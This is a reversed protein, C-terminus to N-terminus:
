DESFNLSPSGAKMEMKATLFHLTCVGLGGEAGLGPFVFVHLHELRGSELAKTERVEMKSRFSDSWEPHLQQSCLLFAPLM